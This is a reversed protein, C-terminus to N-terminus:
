DLSLFFVMYRYTDYGLGPLALSFRSLALKKYYEEPLLRGSWSGDYSRGKVEGGTFKRAICSSINPRYGWSSSSTFVMQSKKEAEVVRMTDWVIKKNHMTQLPLGRPLVIVKPHSFNTHQNVMLMLTMPHDLFETLVEDKDKMCCTGWKATRNPFFTSILGWNENSSHLVVVPTDILKVSQKWKTLFMKRGIPAEGIKTGSFYPENHTRKFAFYGLKLVPAREISRLYHYPQPIVEKFSSNKWPYLIKHKLPNAFKRIDEKSNLISFDSNDDIFFDVPRHYERFLIDGDLFDMFHPFSKRSERLLVMEGSAAKSCAAMWRDQDNPPPFRFLSKSPMPILCWFPDECISYSKNTIATTRRQQASRDNENKDNPIINWRSICLIITTACIALIIDTIKRRHM